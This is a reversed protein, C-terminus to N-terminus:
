GTDRDNIKRFGQQDKSDENVHFRGWKQRSEWLVEGVVDRVLMAGLQGNLGKLITLM